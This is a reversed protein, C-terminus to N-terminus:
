LDDTDRQPIPTGKVVVFGTQLNISIMVTREHDYWQNMDKCGYYADEGFAASFTGNGDEDIELSGDIVSAEVVTGRMDTCYNDLFGILIDSNENIFSTVTALFQENDTGLYELAEACEGLEVPEPQYEM